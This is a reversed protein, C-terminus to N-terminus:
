QSLDWEGTHTGIGWYRWTCSYAGAATPRGGEARDRVPAAGGASPAPYRVKRTGPPLPPVPPPVRRGAAAAAAAVAVAVNVAVAVAPSECCSGWSGSSREPAVRDTICAGARDSFDPPSPLLSRLGLRIQFSFIIIKKKSINKNKSIHNSFFTNGRLSKCCGTEEGKVKEKSEAPSPWAGASRSSLRPSLAEAASRGAPLRSKKIHLKKKKKSCVQAIVVSPVAFELL